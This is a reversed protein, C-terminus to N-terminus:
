GWQSSGAFAWRQRTLHPGGLVVGSDTCHEASSPSTYPLSSPRKEAAPPSPKYLAPCGAQDGMGVRGAERVPEESKLALGSVGSPTSGFDALM